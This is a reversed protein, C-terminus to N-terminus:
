LRVEEPAEVYIGYINGNVRGMEAITKIAEANAKVAEALATMAKTDVTKINVTSNSITTM